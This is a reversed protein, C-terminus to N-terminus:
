KVHAYYEKGGGWKKIAEALEPHGKAYEKLPINKAVAEAAQRMAKAGALTGGPHGHVGGGAQFVFDKSGLANYVGYIKAPHLGGSAVAFTKKLGGMENNCALFNEHVEEAGGEMKGVAAGIHLQDCGAMRALKAVVKMTIGHRPNKTIAAHMARHGHIPLIGEGRISQLASFGCTMVDVMIFNGGHAKVFEAREVMQGYTGTINPTYIKKEGTESRARDMADLVRVVRENFPCFKQSSLNEDDKVLDLGGSWAEYAVQATKKPSLGVKPKVITGVHPRRSKQTGCYRRVGEVGWVPGEFSRLYGKPFEVDELRLNKVDKMGFINGAVDSLLQPINGPEFLEVPYAVKMVGGKGKKKLRFVKAGLRKALAPSSTAVKTWTGVSSEAAVAEAAKRLTMSPEFYLTTIVYKEPEPKFGLEVYGM